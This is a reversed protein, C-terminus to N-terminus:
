LQTFSGKYRGINIDCKILSIKIFILQLDNKKVEFRKLSTFADIGDVIPLSTKIRCLWKKSLSSTKFDYLKCV